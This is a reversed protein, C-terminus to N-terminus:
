GGAPFILPRFGDEESPDAIYGGPANYLQILRLLESLNIRFDQPNYDSNHPEGGECTGLGPAYGDETGFACQYGGVNFFQIVRLLESLNIAGDRNTDASHFVLDGEGQYEFAGIDFDSGDATSLGLGDGDFGRLAGEFDRVVSFFQSSATDRGRDICPSGPRLRFNGVSANRFLPNGVVNGVGPTSSSLCSYTISPNSTGTSGINENSNNYVITNVIQPFSAVNNYIGGGRFTAFNESITCAIIVPSSSDNSIAGGHIEARNNYFISNIILPSAGNINRMGGGFETVRNNFFVCHEIRPSVGNNLMGGASTGRGGQIRFGDLVADDAGFIVPSAPLGNNASFGDVITLNKVWDRESRLSEDGLFGGYLRIGGRMLLTGNFGRSENYVGRAVWVEGGGREDAADIGQQLTRFATAWTMGNLNQGLADRRVYVVVSPLPEEGELSGEGEATGEAEGELLGEAQGEAEGEVQGEVVGEGEATGEFEGEPLGEAQGETEGEVEGEVAGEGEPAGELEGELLGEPEGEPAGEAQGEVAGEGELVGEGELSGEPFGEVTGQGEPIGELQGEGEGYALGAALVLAMPLAAFVFTRTWSTYKMATMSGM